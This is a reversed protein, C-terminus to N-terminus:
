NIAGFYMLSDRSDWPLIQFVNGFPESRGRQIFFFVIPRLEVFTCKFTEALDSLISFIVLLWFHGMFMEFNHTTSIVSSTALHPALFTHFQM